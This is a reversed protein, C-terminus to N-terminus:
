FKGMQRRAQVWGTLKDGLGLLDIVPYFFISVLDTVAERPRPIGGSVVFFAVKVRKRHCLWLVRPYHLLTVVIVLHASNKDAYEKMAMLQGMTDLGKHLATIRRGLQNVVRIYEDEDSVGSKSVFCSTTVVEDGTKRSMRVAAVCQRYWDQAWEPGLRWEPFTAKTLIGIVTRM